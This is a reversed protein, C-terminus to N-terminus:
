AKKYWFIPAMYKNGGLVPLSAHYFPKVSPFVVVSGATPKLKVGQERFEIEGGTYDDNLYLVASIIPLDVDGEYNDVHPGMGAGTDYRSITLQAPEGIDTGTKESFDRAVKMITSHLAQYILAAPESSTSLKSPTCSKQAGFINEPDDSATWVYWPSIVDSDGMNTNSLELLSVLSDPTRLVGEYYYIREAFVQPNLM